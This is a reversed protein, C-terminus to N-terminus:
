SITMLIFEKDKWNVFYYKYIVSSMNRERRVSPVNDTEPKMKALIPNWSWSYNLLHKDPLQMRKSIKKKRMKFTIKNKWAIFWFSYLTRILSCCNVYGHITTRNICRKDTKDSHIVQKNLFSTRGWKLGNKDILLHIRKSNEHTHKVECWLSMTKSFWFMSFNKFLYFLIIQKYIASTSVCIIYKRIAKEDLRLLLQYCM